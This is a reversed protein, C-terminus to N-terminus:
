IIILMYVAPVSLRVHGHLLFSVTPVPAMLLALPVPLQPCFVIAKGPANMDEVLQAKAKQAM